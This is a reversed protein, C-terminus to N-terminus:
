PERKALRRKRKRRRKEMFELFFILDRTREIMSMNGLM